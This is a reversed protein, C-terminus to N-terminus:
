APKGDGVVASTSLRPASGASAKDYTKQDDLWAAANDMSERINNPSGRILRLVGQVEDWEAERISGGVGDLLRLSRLVPVLYFFQPKNPRPALQKDPVVDSFTSSNTRPRTMLLLLLLLQNSSPDDASAPPPPPSFPCFCSATLQLRLWHEKRLERSVPNPAQNGM